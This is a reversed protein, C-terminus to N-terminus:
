KNEENKEEDNKESIRTENRETASESETNVAENKEETFRTNFNGTGTNRGNKERDTFSTRYTSEQNNQQKYGVLWQGIGMFMVLLGIAGIGFEGTIAWLFIFLGIGTFTNRIGQTRQDTPKSERIFGEPLPQGAALAQEALRYRAKRNKYRFFFVVFIIFVPMGFIAIISIIAVLIGGGVADGFNNFPFDDDDSSITFSAKGHSGRSSSSVKGTDVSTTDADEDDIGIVTVATNGVNVKADKGKGKTVTVKVNGTSDNVITTQKQANALSFITMMVLLAILIRKM